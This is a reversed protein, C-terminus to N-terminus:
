APTIGQINDMLPVKMNDQLIVQGSNLIYEKMNIIMNVQTLEQTHKTLTDKLSEKTNIIM